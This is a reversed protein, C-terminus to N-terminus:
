YTLVRAIYLSKEEISTNGLFHFQLCYIEVVQRLQSCLKLHPVRQISCFLYIFFTCCLSKQPHEVVSRNLTVKNWRMALRLFVPLVASFAAESFVDHWESVLDPPLNSADRRGHEVDAVLRGCTRVLRCLAVTFALHVSNEFNVFSSCIEM